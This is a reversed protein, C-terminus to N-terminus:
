DADGQEPMMLVLPACAPDSCGFSRVESGDTWTATSGANIRFAWTRGEARVQGQVSCPLHYYPEAATSAIPKSLRFFTQARVKDIQWAECESKIAADGRHQSAPDFEPRSVSVVSFAGGADM